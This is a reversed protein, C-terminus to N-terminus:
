NNITILKGYINILHTDENTHTKYKEMKIIDWTTKIKNNSKFIKNNYYPQKAAKIVTSL